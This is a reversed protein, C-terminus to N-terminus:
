ATAEERLEETELEPIVPIAVCRCNIAQGPHGDHPPVSWLFKQGNRAFHDGHVSNGVPYLGGPTGVVREDEATQWVYSTIGLDTQRARNLDSIIKGTQDRAILKARSGVVGFRDKLVNVISQQDFGKKDFVGTIQDVLQLNLERPISRILDINDLFAQDIIPRISLDSMRPLIDVGLAARFSDVMKAKHVKRINDMAAQVVPAGYGEASTVLTFEQNIANIYAHKIGPVSELRKVTGEFLPKIIEKKIAREYAKEDKIRPGIARPPRMKKAM